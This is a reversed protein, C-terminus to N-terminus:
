SAGTKARRAAAVKRERERRMRARPDEDDGLQAPGFVSLGIYKIRYFIRYGLSLGESDAKSMAQWM